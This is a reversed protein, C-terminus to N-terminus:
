ETDDVRALTLEVRTGDSVDFSLQGGSQTVVRKVLWLGLGSAHDLATERGEEIVEIEQAPIGPGDDAVVVTVTNAEATATVTVTPPTGDDGHQLANEVLNKIGLDIDRVARIETGEPVDVTVNTDENTTKVQEISRKVLAFLDHTVLEADKEVLWDFQSVKRSTGALSQSADLIARAMEAHEGDLDDALITGYSHIVSTENRINHRLSRAFIQKRL